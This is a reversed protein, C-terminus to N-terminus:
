SAESEAKVAKLIAILFAAAPTDASGRYSTPIPGEGLVHRKSIVFYKGSMQALWRYDPLVREMLAICADLSSTPDGGLTRIPDDVFVEEGDKVSYICWNMRNVHYIKAHPDGLTASVAEVGLKQGTEGAQIREIINDLDAM